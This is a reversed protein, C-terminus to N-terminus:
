YPAEEGDIIIRHMRRRYGAYDDIANHQTCRNDWIGLSGVQWRIRCTFEPRAAHRRLYQILPASEQSTMGDFEETHGSVFLAKRGTDPHTRIIPHLSNLDDDDPDQQQMGSLGTFRAVKKAGINLGKREALLSKMGDSLAEYASYLDSYETDGGAPPVELAYLMTAKPPIKSFIGDTHWGSGFAYTDSETKLVELIEPHSPLGKMYPYIAIEGWRKAFGLYQDTTLKQDRFVIVQYEVFLATSKTLVTM